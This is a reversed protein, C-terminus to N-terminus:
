EELEEYYTEAEERGGNNRSGITVSRGNPIHESQYRNNRGVATRETTVSRGSAALAQRQVNIKKVTKTPAAVTMKPIAKVYYYYEDDEFQVNEIRSYDISFRFFELIKAIVLALVSTLIVGVLSLNTEYMLDGMLLIVLNIIAGAIMAITWAYDVPLRRVIYVIVITVAFAVLMVLMEKNNLLGDIVLRVKATAEEAGMANIVQANTVVLHLMHYGILGCAVAFISVPGCLLGVVIPVVCPIQIAACIATFLVVVSDYRTGFRFFLLFLILYIAVAVIAVELSLAYMHALSFLVAFFIVFGNPLFSCLLAAILVLGLNDLQYMYGMKGSVISFTLFALMFKLIPMIVFEFRGYVRKIKDRLELLSRM